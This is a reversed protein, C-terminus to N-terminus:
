GTKQRLPLSDVAAREVECLIDDIPVPRGASHANKCITMIRLYNQRALGPTGGRGCYEARWDSIMRASVKGQRRSIRLGLESSLRQAVEENAENSSAQGFRYLADALGALTGRIALVAPADPRAIGRLRFELPVKSGYIIADLAALLRHLPRSRINSAELSLFVAELSDYMAIRSAGIRDPNTKEAKEYDKEIKALVEALGIPPGGIEPGMQKAGCRFYHHLHLSGQDIMSGPFSPASIVAASLYIRLWVVNRAGVFLLYWRGV